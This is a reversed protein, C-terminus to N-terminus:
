EDFIHNEIGDSFGLCCEGLVLPIESILVALLKAYLDWVGNSFCELKVSFGSVVFPSFCCGFFHVVKVPQVDEFAVRRVFLKWFFLTPLASINSFLSDPYFNLPTVLSGLSLWM